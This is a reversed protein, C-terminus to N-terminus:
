AFTQLIALLEQDPRSGVFYRLSAGQGIALGALPAVVFPKHRINTSVVCWPTNTRQAEKYAALVYPMAGDLKVEKAIDKKTMIVFEYDM